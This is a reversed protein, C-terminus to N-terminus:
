GGRPDGRRPGLRLRARHRFQHHGGSAGPSNTSVAEDDDIAGYRDGSIPWSGLTIPSVEVGTQGFERAQM